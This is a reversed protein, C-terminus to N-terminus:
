TVEGGDASATDGAPVFQPLTCMGATADFVVRMPLGARFATVDITTGILDGLLYLGDQEALEVIVCTYPLESALSSAAAHYTTTWSALKAQGSVPEFALSASGCEACIPEPPHQFTRCDRCQQIILRGDAAARWFPESVADPVPTIRDASRRRPLDPTM